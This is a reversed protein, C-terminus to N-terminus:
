DAAKLNEVLAAAGYEEINFDINKSLYSEIQDKKPNDILTRREAGTQYYISLNKLPTILLIDQPMHPVYVVPLGGLTREKSLGGAAELETAKDAATNIIRLYKDGVTRRSAIVVFDTRDAFREDILENLVDTVVADLNKYAADAAAGYKVEKKAVGVQGSQWGLVRSPNEERM